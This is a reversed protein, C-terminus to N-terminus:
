ASGRRLAKRAALASREDIEWRAEISLRGEYETTTLADFFPEFDCEEQGPALRNEYTAIHAHVLLPGADIISQAPEGNQAWHYADVLLRVGPHDVDHVYQASEAVTNLINCEAHRLPEVAVTVGHDAAIPGIMRGFRVLQDWGRERDFGNPIRRAGGSGFVVIRVGTQEARGFATQVYRELAPEDVNSGTLKFLGPLFICAVPTPLGCNAVVALRAGAQDLDMEPQLDRVVNIELYDFGAQALTPAEEPAAYVGLQM